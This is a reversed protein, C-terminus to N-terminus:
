LGQLVSLLRVVRLFGRGAAMSAGDAGQPPPLLTLPEFISLSCVEETNM